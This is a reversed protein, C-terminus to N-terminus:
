YNQLWNLELAGLFFFLLMTTAVVYGLHGNSKLVDSVLRKKPFFNHDFQFKVIHKECALLMHRKLQGM